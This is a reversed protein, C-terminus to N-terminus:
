GTSRVAPGPVLRRLVTGCRRAYARQFVPVLPGAARTFWAAPRSFSTVTLAVSGDRELTVVFSEEGCEPHGPLTGYAFGTRTEEAVTWVVRCPAYLRLPGAGLGVTVARGPMAPGDTAVTVGVARHMRWDLVAMGAARFVEPGRGLRTRVRLRRYGDPLPLGRTAGVERYTFGAAAM